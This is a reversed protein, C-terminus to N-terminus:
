IIRSIWADTNLKIRVIGEMFNSYTGFDSSKNMAQMARSGENIFIQNSNFKGLAVKPREGSCAILPGHTLTSMNSLNNTNLFMLNYTLFVTLMRIDDYTHPDFINRNMTYCWMFKTYNSLFLLPNYAFMPLESCFILDANYDTELIKMVQHIMSANKPGYAEYVHECVTLIDFSLLNNPLQTSTTYFRIWAVTPHMYAIDIKTVPTIRNIQREIEKNNKIHKVDLSQQIKSAAEESVLDIGVSRAVPGMFDSQCKILKWIIRDANPKRILTLADDLTIKKNLLMFQAIARAALYITPDNMIELIVSELCNIDEVLSPLIPSQSTYEM